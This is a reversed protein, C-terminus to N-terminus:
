SVEAANFLDRGGFWTRTMRTRWYNYLILGGAGVVKEARIVIIGATPILPILNQNICIIFSSGTKRNIKVFVFNIEKKFIHICAWDYNRIGLVYLLDIKM